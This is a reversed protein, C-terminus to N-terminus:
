GANVIFKIKNVSSFSNIKDASLLEPFTFNITIGITIEIANCDYFKLLKDDIFWTLEGDFCPLLAAVSLL